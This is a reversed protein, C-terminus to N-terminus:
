ENYATLRQRITSQWEAGPELHLPWVHIAVTGQYGREYGAESNTVTELPFLWLACPQDLETTLAMERLRTIMRHQRVDPLEQIEALPLWEAGGNVTLGAYEPVQGGDFGAALEVGFRVDVACRVPQARHLYM